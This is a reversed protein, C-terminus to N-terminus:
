RGRNRLLRRRRPDTSRGPPMPVVAGVLNGARAASSISDFKFTDLDLDLGTGTIVICHAERRLSQLWEPTVENLAVSYAPFGHPDVVAFLDQEEDAVMHWKELLPFRFEGASLLEFGQALFTSIRPDITETTDPVIMKMLGRTEFALIPRYGDRGDLHPMGLFLADADESM